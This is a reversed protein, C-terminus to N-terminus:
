RKIFKCLAISGDFLTAEIIYIGSELRSVDVQDSEYKCKIINFGLTNSIKITEVNPIRLSIYNECPNPYVDIQLFQKTNSFGTDDVEDKLCRVALGQYKYYGSRVMQNEGVTFLWALRENPGDHYFDGSLWFWTESEITNYFGYARRGSFRKIELGSTGGELLEKTEKYVKIEGEGDPSQSELIASTNEMLQDFEISSPVHWGDPCLKNSNVAEWNYMAGFIDKNQINNSYWCYAGETANTWNNEDTIHQIPKGDNYTTTKLNETMWEQNGIKVTQYKNGDFDSIENTTQCLVCPLITALLLTIILFNKM